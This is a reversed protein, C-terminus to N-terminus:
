AVFSVLSIVPLAEILLLLGSYIAMKLPNISILRAEGRIGYAYILLGFRTFFSLCLITSIYIIWSRSQEYHSQSYLKLTKLLKAAVFIYMFCFFLDTIMHFIYPQGIFIFLGEATGFAVLIIALIVYAYVVARRFYNNTDDFRVQIVLTLWIGLHTVNFLHFISSSLHEM